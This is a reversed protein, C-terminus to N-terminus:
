SYSRLPVALRKMIESGRTPQRWMLTVSRRVLISQACQMFSNTSM